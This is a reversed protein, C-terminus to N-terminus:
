RRRKSDGNSARWPLSGDALGAEAMLLLDDLKPGNLYCYQGTEQDNLSLGLMGSAFKLSLSGSKRSVGTVSDTGMLFAWIESYQTLLGADLASSLSGTGSAADARRDPIKMCLEVGEPSHRLRCWWCLVDVIKVAPRGLGDRERFYEPRQKSM